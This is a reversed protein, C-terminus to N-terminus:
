PFRPNFWPRSLTPALTNGVAGNRGRTICIRPVESVELLRAESPAAVSHTIQSDVSQDSKLDTIGAGFTISRGWQTTLSDPSVRQSQWSVGRTIILGEFETTSSDRVGLRAREPHRDTRQVIRDRTILSPTGSLPPDVGMQRSLITPMKRLSSLSKIAVRESSRNKAGLVILANWPDRDLPPQFGRWQKALPDRAQPASRAPAESM